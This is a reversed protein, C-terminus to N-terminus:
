ISYRIKKLFYYLLKTIKNTKLFNKIKLKTPQKKLDYFNEAINVFEKIKINIQEWDSRIIFPKISPHNGNKDRTIKYYNKSNLDINELYDSNLDYFNVEKNMFNYIMKFNDIRIGLSKDAENLYRTECFAINSKINMASSSDLILSRLETQSVLNNNYGKNLSNYIIAPVSCVTESINSGDKGYAWKNKEFFAYGHDSFIFLETNKNMKDFFVGVAEDLEAVRADYDFPTTVLFRDEPKSFGWLHVWILIPYNLNNIREIVYHVQELPRLSGINKNEKTTENGTWWFDANGFSNILNSFKIFRKNLCVYTKYGMKEHDTFINELFPNNNHGYHLRDFEKQYKGTFISAFCMATSTACAMMDNFVVSEKAIREFNKSINNSKKNYISLRDKRIGDITLIVKSKM